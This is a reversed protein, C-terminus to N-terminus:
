RWCIEGEQAGKWKYTCTKWSSNFYISGNVSQCWNVISKSSAWPNTLFNPNSPSCLSSSQTILSRNIKITFYSWKNWKWDEKGSSKSDLSLKWTWTSLALSSNWKLHAWIKLLKILFQSYLQFPHQQLWLKAIKLNLSLWQLSQLFCWHNTVGLIIHFSLILVM